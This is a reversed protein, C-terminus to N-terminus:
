SAPSSALTPPNFRSSRIINLGLPQSFMGALWALCFLSLWLDAHQIEPYSKIDQVPLQAPVAAQALPAAPPLPAPPVPAAPALPALPPPPAALM